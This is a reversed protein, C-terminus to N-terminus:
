DFEPKKAVLKLFFRSSLKVLHCISLKIKLLTLKEKSKINQLTKASKKALYGKISLDIKRQFVGRNILTKLLISYM